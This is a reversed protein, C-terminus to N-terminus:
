FLLIKTCFLFVLVRLKFYFALVYYFLSFSERTVMLASIGEPNFIWIFPHVLSGSGPFM